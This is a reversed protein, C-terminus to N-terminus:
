ESLRKLQGIKGAPVFFYDKWPTDPFRAAKVLQGDRLYYGRYDLDQLQQWVEDASRGFREALFVPHIEIMLVPRYADLTKRAGDLMLAEAGEIDCRLFDVHAIGARECFSDLTEMPIRENEFGVFRTDWATGAAYLAKDSVFAFARGM